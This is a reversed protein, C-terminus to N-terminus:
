QICGTLLWYYVWFRKTQNMEHNITTDEKGGPAPFLGPGHQSNSPAKWDEQQSSSKSIYGTPQNTGMKSRLAEPGGTVVHSCFWVQQKVLLSENM